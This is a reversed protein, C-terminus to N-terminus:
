AQMAAKLIFSQLVAVPDEMWDLIKMAKREQAAKFDDRLIRGLTKVISAPTGARSLIGESLLYRDTYLSGQFASVTPVGLLAAEANMTGGMGVFADSKKLLSAGDIPGDPVIFTEGFEKQLQLVQQDYRGLVVLNHAAFGKAIAGLVKRMFSSDAKALYPADSEPARITITKKGSKLKPVPGGLAPRKLWAAPDLARYTSVQRPALGYIGWASKPIVWPCLLHHSLPLSLRGAIESHPSDNVAIHKAGLGFAVRACVGSAVSVAVQPDFDRAIPIILSQRETSAVLQAEKGKGGREGVFTLKLGAMEALPELERYARSTVLVDCEEKRLSKVLPGFFLIQKPTLIDFWIRATPM